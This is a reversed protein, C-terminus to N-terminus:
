MGDSIEIRKPETRRDHSGIDHGAGRLLMILVVLLLLLWGVRLLKMM